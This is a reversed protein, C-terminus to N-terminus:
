PTDRETIQDIIDQHVEDAPSPAPCTPTGVVTIAGVTLYVIPRVTGHSVRVIHAVNVLHDTGGEDYVTIFSM